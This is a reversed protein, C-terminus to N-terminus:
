CSILAFFVCSILALEFIYRIKIDRTSLHSDSLAGDLKFRAIAKVAARARALERQLSVIKARAMEYSSDKIGMKKEIVAIRHELQQQKQQTLKEVALALDGKIDDVFRRSADAVAAQSRQGNLIGDKGLQSIPSSPERERAHLVAHVTNSNIRDAYFHRCQSVQLERAVTTLMDPMWAASNLEYLYADM